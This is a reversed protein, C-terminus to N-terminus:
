ISSGHDTCNIVCDFQKMPSFALLYYPFSFEEDAPM